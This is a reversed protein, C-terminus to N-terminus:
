AAFGHHLTELLVRAEALVDAAVVSPLAPAYKLAALRSFGIATAVRAEATFGSLADHRSVFEEHTEYLSPDGAVTSLYTRLILSALVAADRVDDAPIEALATVAEGFAARCLASKGNTVPKRKRLWMMVGLVVLVAIAAAALWPGWASDPLLAEPSAPELLELHKTNGDMMIM